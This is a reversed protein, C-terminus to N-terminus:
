KEINIVIQYSSGNDSENYNITIGQTQLKSILDKIQSAAFPEENEGLSSSTAGVLQMPDFETTTASSIDNEEKKPAATFFKNNPKLEISNDDNIDLTEYDTNFTTNTSTNNDAGFIELDKKPQSAVIDQNLTEFKNDDNGVIDDINAFFKNNEPQPIADLPTSDIFTPQPNSSTSTSLESYDTLVDDPVMMNPINKKNNSNIDFAKQKIDDINPNINVIPITSEEKKEKAKKLEQDLQRVTLRNNIIRNLWEVQEETTDLSLKLGAVDLYIINDKYNIKAIIDQNNYNINLIGNILLNDKFSAKIQGNVIIDDKNFNIDLKLGKNNIIDKIDDILYNLNALDQYTNFDENIELKNPSIKADININIDNINLNAKIYNISYDNNFSFEVAINQNLIPLNAKLITKDNEKIIESNDLAQMLATTDLMTNLDTTSLLNTLYNLNTKIKIEDYSLYIDDKIVNVLLDNSKFIYKNNLIDLSLTGNILKDNINISIDATLIDGNLYNGFGYMFYDTPKLEEPTTPVNDSPTLDFYDAFFDRDKIELNDYTFTETMNATCTISGIVPMIIDYVEDSSIELLQWNADFKITLNISSFSPFDSSGGYTKVEYQYNAPAINPDLSLNISYTEDENLIVDSIELISEKCLIYSSIQNPLWGYINLYQNTSYVQPTEDLWTTDKGNIKDPNRTLAKDEAFLFYKQIAVSKLSSTSIAQQFGEDGIITRVNYVDQTYNIFAVKAKVEGETVGNFDANAMVGAVIALNDYSDYDAVTTGDTPRSMTTTTYGYAEVPGKNNTKNNILATVGIAIGIIALISVIIIIKKRM